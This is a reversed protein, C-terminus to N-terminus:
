GDIHKQNNKPILTNAIKELKEIRSDLMVYRESQIKLYYKHMSKKTEFDIHDYGFLYDKSNEVIRRLLDKQYDKTRELSNLIAALDNKTFEIDDINGLTFNIELVNKRYSNALSKAKNHGYINEYFNKKYKKGSTRIFATYYKDIENYIVGVALDTHSIQNHNNNEYDTFRLNELRNDLTDGNIHDIFPSGMIFQHYRIIKGIRKLNIEAYIKNGTASKTKCITVDCIPKNFNVMFLPLFILDTKMILNKKIMIEVDDDNIIIRNKVVGFKHAVNILFIRAEICMDGESDYNKINFTKSHIEKNADKIRLTLIEGEEGDKYFITGPISGLIWKNKPLNEADWFYNVAYNEMIMDGIEDNTKATSYGLGFEKMNCERLDLTNGNIYQVIKYNNLLNTFLFQVTISKKKSKKTDNNKKPITKQATVYFHGPKDKEKKEKAFLPFKNVIDLNKADTIFTKGRTLNVEITNKDIFRIENVTLGLEHSKEMKFKKAADECAKKSPYDKDRFTFSLQKQKPRSIILQWYNWKEKYNLSGRPRGYSWETPYKPM